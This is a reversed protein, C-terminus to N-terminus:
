RRDASTSSELRAIATPVLMGLFNAPAYREFPRASRTRASEQDGRMVVGREDGNDIRLAVGDGEDVRNEVVETGADDAGFGADDKVIAGAAEHEIAPMGIDDGAALPREVGDDRRHQRAVAPRHHREADGAPWNWGNPCTCSTLLM